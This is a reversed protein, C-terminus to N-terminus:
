IPNVEPRHFWGKILDTFLKCADVVLQEGQGAVVKRAPRLKRDAPVMEALQRVFEGVALLHRLGFCQLRGEGTKLMHTVFEYFLM